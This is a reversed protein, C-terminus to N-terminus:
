VCFLLNKAKTCHQVNGIDHEWEQVCIWFVLLDTRSSKLTAYNKDIELVNCCLKIHPYIGGQPVNGNFNSVGIVLVVANTVISETDGLAKFHFRWLWNDSQKLM